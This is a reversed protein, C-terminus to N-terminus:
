KGIHDFLIKLGSEKRKRKRPAAEELKEEAEAKMAKKPASKKLKVEPLPIRNQAISVKLTRGDLDSGNLEDIATKAHKGNPMQIFAIGTPKKTDKDLVINVYKVKGFREFIVKLDMETTTYRLNGAYITTVSPDTQFYGVSAANKKVFDTNKTKM